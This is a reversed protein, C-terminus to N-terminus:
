TAQSVIPQTPKGTHKKRKKRKKEFDLFFCSKKGKKLERVRKRSCQAGCMVCDEISEEMAFVGCVAWVEML